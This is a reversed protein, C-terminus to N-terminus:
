RLPKRCIFLAQEVNEVFFDNRKVEDEFDPRIEANIIQLVEEAIDEMEVNEPLRFDRILSLLAAFYDSWSPSNSFYLYSPALQEPLHLQPSPPLPLDIGSTVVESKPRPRASQEFYDIIEFREALALRHPEIDFNLYFSPAPELDAYRSNKRLESAIFSQYGWLRRMNNYGRTQVALLGGPRLSEYISDLIRAQNDVHYLLGKAFVLDLSEKAEDRGIISILDEAYGIIRSVPPRPTQTMKAYSREVVGPYYRDIGLMQGQHGHVHFNYWLYANNGCGLDVGTAEKSAGNAYVMATLLREIDTIQDEISQLHAESRRQFGPPLEIPPSAYSYLARRAETNAFSEFYQRASREDATETGIRRAKEVFREVPGRVHDGPSEGPM